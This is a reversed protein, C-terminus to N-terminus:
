DARLIEDHRRRRSSQGNLLESYQTHMSHLSFRSQGVNSNFQQHLEDEEEVKSMQRSASPRFNKMNSFLISHKISVDNSFDANNPNDTALSVAIYSVM